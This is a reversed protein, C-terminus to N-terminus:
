FFSPLVHFPSLMPNESFINIICFTLKKKKLFRFTLNLLIYEYFETQLEIKLNIPVHLTHAFIHELNMFKANLARAFISVLNLLVQFNVYSGSTEKQQVTHSSAAKYSNLTESKSM